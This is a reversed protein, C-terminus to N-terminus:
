LFFFVIDAFKEMFQLEIFPKVFGGYLLISVISLLPVWLLSILLAVTLALASPEPYSIGRMDLIKRIGQSTRNWAGLMMTRLLIHPPNAQIAIPTWEANFVIFLSDGINTPLPKPFEHGITAVVEEWLYSRKRVPVNWFPLAVVLKEPPVGDVLKSIEWKLGETSGFVWVVLSAESTLELVKDKWQDDSVYVRAAGLTAFKEGPRGIAVLPGAGDFGAAISSEYPNIPVSLGGFTPMTNKADLEDMAFSRLYLFPKKTSKAIIESAEPMSLKRGRIIMRIGLWSLGTGALLIVIGSLLSEPRPIGIAPAYRIGVILCFGVLLLLIGLVILRKGKASNREPQRTSEPSFNM